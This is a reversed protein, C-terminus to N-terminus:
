VVFAKELANKQEQLSSLMKTEGWWEIFDITEGLDDATFRHKFQRTTMNYQKEFAALRSKTRRIGSEVLKLERQLASLLLPRITEANETQVIVQQLM